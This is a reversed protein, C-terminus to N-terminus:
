TYQPITNINLKLLKVSDDDFIKYNMWDRHQSEKTNSIWKVLVISKYLAQNRSTDKVLPMNCQLASPHFHPHLTFYSHLTFHSTHPTPKSFIPTHTPEYSLM